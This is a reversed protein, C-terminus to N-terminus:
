KVRELLSSGVKNVRENTAVSLGIGEAFRRAAAMDTSSVYAMIRGQRFVVGKTKPFSVGVWVVHEDGLVFTDDKSMKMSIDGFVQSKVARLYWVQADEPSPTVLMVLEAVDDGFKWSKFITGTRSHVEDQGEPYVNDKYIEWGPERERITGNIEGAL